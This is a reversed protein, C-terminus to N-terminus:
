WVVSIVTDSSFSEPLSARRVKVLDEFLFRCPFVREQLRGSRPPLRRIHFRYIGVNFRNPANQLSRPEIHKSGKEEEGRCDTEDKDLYHQLSAQM